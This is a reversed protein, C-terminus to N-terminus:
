TLIMCIAQYIDHIVLSLSKMPLRLPSNSWAAGRGEGFPLFPWPFAYEEYIEDHNLHRKQKKSAAEEAEEAIM